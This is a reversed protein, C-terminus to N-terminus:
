LPANADTLPILSAFALANVVTVVIVVRTQGIRDIVRGQVPLSGAAALAYCAQVLGAAAFSGTSGKILLISALPQAAIALRGITTGLLPAVVGRAGLVRRYTEPFM